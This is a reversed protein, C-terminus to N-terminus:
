AGTLVRTATTPAAAPAKQFSWASGQAAMQKAMQARQAALASPNDLMPLSAKTAENIAKTLAAFATDASGQAQDFASLYSQEQGGTGPATFARSLAKGIDCM